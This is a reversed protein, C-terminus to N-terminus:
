TIFINTFIQLRSYSQFRSSALPYNPWARAGAAVKEPDSVPLNGKEKKIMARVLIIAKPMAFISDYIYM